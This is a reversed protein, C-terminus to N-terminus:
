FPLPSKKEMSGPQLYFAADLEKNRESFMPIVADVNGSELANQVKMYEALLVNMHQYYEEDSMPKYDPLDDSNFFAWLPLSSPINIKRSFLFRGKLKDKKTIDHIEIDGSAAARFDDDSDFRGSPSSNTVAKNDSLQKGSFSIDAVSYTVDPNDKDNVLLTITVSAHVNIDEGPKEPFIYIGITNMGSRMWHNIPLTTSLQGGSFTEQHIVVGNIQVLYKTGFAKLSLQYIPKNKLINM